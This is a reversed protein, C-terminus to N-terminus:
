NLNISSGNITVKGKCKITLSGTARNFEIFSGDGFDIRRVDVSTANPPQRDSFATGLIWGDNKNKSSPDMLCVVTDGVDPLWYDRNKSSGRSLPHLWPSIAGDKEEFTVKVTCAAADIQSVIGKRILNKVETDM